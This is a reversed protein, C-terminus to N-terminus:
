LWEPAYGLCTNVLTWDYSSIIDDTSRLVTDILAPQPPSEVWLFIIFLCQCLLACRRRQEREKGNGDNGKVAEAGDV